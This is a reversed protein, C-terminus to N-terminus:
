FDLVSDKLNQLFSKQTSLKWKSGCSQCQINESCCVDNVFGFNSCDSSPCSIYEGTSQILKQTVVQNITEFRTRDLMCNLDGLSYAFECGTQPCKLHMESINRFHKGKVQQVMWNCLCDFCSPTDCEPCVDLGVKAKLLQQKSAYCVSCTLQM